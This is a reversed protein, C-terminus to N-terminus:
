VKRGGSPPPIQRTARTAAAIRRRIRAVFTALWGPRRALPRRQGPALPGDVLAMQKIKDVRVSREELVHFFSTHIVPRWKTNSFPDEHHEIHNEHTFIGYRFRPMVTDAFWAIQDDYWHIFVDKVIIVDGGIVLADTFAPVHHFTLLPYRTRLQPVLSPSCDIGVYHYPTGDWAIHGRYTELNGCGYDLIKHVDLSHLCSLLAACYEATKDPMSGEGSGGEFDHRYNGDFWKTIDYKM